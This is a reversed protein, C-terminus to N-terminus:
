RDRGSMALHVEKWSMHMRRYICCIRAVAVVVTLLLLMVLTALIGIVAYLTLEKNAQKQSCPSATLDSQDEGTVVVSASANYLGDSAQVNFIIPFALKEESSTRVLAITGDVPDITCCHNDGPIIRYQLSSGFDKDGDLAQVRGIIRLDADYPAASNLLYVQSTFHPQNDNEPIIYIFFSSYVTNGLFDDCRLQISYNTRAEYDLPSKLFLTGNSTVSFTRSVDVDGSVLSVSGSIDAIGLINCPFRKLESGTRLDESVHIDFSAEAFFPRCETSIIHVVLLLRPCRSLDPIDCASINILRTIPSTANPCYNLEFPTTLTLNGTEPDLSFHDRTDRSGTMTYTIIGHDLGRDRDFFGLSVLAGAKPLGSAVLLSSSSSGYLWVLEQSNSQEREPRFENVPVVNIDIVATDSYHDEDHCDVQLSYFVQDEYDLPSVATLVFTNNIRVASFTHQHPSLVYFINSPDTDLDTCHLELFFQPQSNETFNLSYFHQPFVPSEDNIPMVNVQVTAMAMLEPASGLNSARIGLVYVRAHEYDLGSILVIEGSRSNISFEGHDNGSVIEYFIRGYRGVDKDTANMTVLHSEMLGNHSEEINLVISDNVFVPPYQNEEMYFVTLSTSIRDSMQLEDTCFIRALYTTGSVLEALPYVALTVEGSYEDIEFYREGVPQLNFLSFSVRSAGVCSVQLITSGLLNNQTINVLYGSESFESGNFAM